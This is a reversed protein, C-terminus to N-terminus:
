QDLVQSVRRTFGSGTITGNFQVPKYFPATSGNTVNARFPQDTSYNLTDSFATTAEVGPGFIADGDTLPGGASAEVYIRSGAILNTLSFTVSNNIVVTNGTTNTITYTGPNSSNVANITLQGSSAAASYLIDYDNGSFLLGDYTFTGQAPHEIAQPDNTGHTNSLFSSNKINISANWLLAAGASSNETTGSITLNRVQVSGPAYQGCQDVINGIFEHATVTGHSVGESVLRLTSGYTQFTNVNGDDFDIIVSVSSNQGQILTGNRGVATDGTGVKEGMKFSTTGTGNGVVNLQYLTSTVPRDAFIVIEDNSKFDCANTSGSDGIIIRGQSFLIGDVEQLIGYKNATAEDEIAIDAFDFQTAGYATLGTGFRTVDVWCNIVNRTGVTNYFYIEVTDIASLVLTGSSTDATANVDQVFCTWNGLWTDSGAINWDKYNGSTDLIRLRLGGNAKTGLQAYVTSYAWFYVHTDAASMDWSTTPHTFQFYKTANRVIGSLSSLGQIFIEDDLAEAISGASANTTSECDHILTLNPVVTAAM